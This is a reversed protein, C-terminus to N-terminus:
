DGDMARAGDFIEFKRKRFKQGFMGPIGGNHDPGTNERGLRVVGGCGGGGSKGVGAVLLRARRVDKQDLARRGLM